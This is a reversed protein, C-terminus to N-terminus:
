HSLQTRLQSFKSMHDNFMDQPVDFQGYWAFEYQQSLQRFLRKQEVNNLENQYDHNTKDIRYSILQRSILLQLAWMYSYRVAARLEQKQIANQLLTDWDTSLINEEDSGSTANEDGIHKVRSFLISENSFFVRYIIFLVVFIVIAWMILATVTGGSTFLMELFTALGNKKYHKPQMMQEHEDKYRMDPDNKLREWQLPTLTRPPETAKTGQICCCLVICILALIKQIRYM